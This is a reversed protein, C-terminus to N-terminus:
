FTYSVARFHTEGPLQDPLCTDPKCFLASTWAMTEGGKGCTDRNWAQEKLLLFYIYGSTYM